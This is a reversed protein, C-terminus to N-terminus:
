FCASAVSLSRFAPPFARFRFCFPLVPPVATPAFGPLIFPFLCSASYSFRSCPMPFWAPVFPSFRSLSLPLPAGPFGSHPPAPFHPFSSASASYHSALVSASSLIRFDPTSGQPSIWFPLVLPVATPAFSPLVFPFSCFASYRFRSPFCSFDPQLSLPFGFVRSRFPLVSLHGVTLPFDPLFLFPLFLPQTTLVPVSASSLFCFSLSFGSLSLM